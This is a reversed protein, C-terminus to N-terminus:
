FYPLGTCSSEGVAYLRKLDTRGRLDTLVGGCTYHAAPVVPVPEKTMDYGYKECNEAINPFHDLIFEKPKHSIDLFVSDFGGKKMEYDIARAVIDRPALEEQPHHSPM